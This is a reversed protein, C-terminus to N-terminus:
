LEGRHFLGAWALCFADAENNNDTVFGVKACAAIMDKKTAVGSGTILKKLRSPAVVQFGMDRHVFIYRILTGIEVLTALTYRNGYGYGEVVVEYPEPTYLYADVAERVRDAIYGGRWLNGKAVEKKPAVIEAHYLVEVSDRSESEQRLVVVGTKTSIDLGM